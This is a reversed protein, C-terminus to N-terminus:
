GLLRLGEWFKAYRYRRSPSSSPYCARLHYLQALPVKWSRKVYEASQRDEALLLEVLANRVVGSSVFRARFRNGM